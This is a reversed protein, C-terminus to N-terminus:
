KVLKSAFAWLGEIRYLVKKKSALSDVGLPHFLHELITRWLSQNM